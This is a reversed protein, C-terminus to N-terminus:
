QKWGTSGPVIVNPNKEVWVVPMFDQTLLLCDLSVREISPVQGGTDIFVDLIANCVPEIQEQPIEAIDYGTARIFVKRRMFVGHDEMKYGIEFGDYKVSHVLTKDLESFTNGRLALAPAKNINEVWSRLDALATAARADREPVPWTKGAIDADRVGGM